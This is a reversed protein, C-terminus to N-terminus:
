PQSLDEEDNSRHKKSKWHGGQDHDNESYYLEKPEITRGVAQATLLIGNNKLKKSVSAPAHLMAEFSSGLTKGEKTQPKRQGAPVGKELQVGTDRHM